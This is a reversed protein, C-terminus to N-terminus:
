KPVDKILIVPIARCPNKNKSGDLKWSQVVEVPVREGNVIMHVLPPIKLAEVQKGCHQCKM